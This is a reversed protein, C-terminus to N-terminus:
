LCVADICVQGTNCSSNRTCQPAIEQAGVCYGEKCLTGSCASGCNQDSDCPTRCIANVCERDPACDQNSKCQPTPRGDPRCVNSMCADARNPCDTDVKCGAHCFGNICLSGASCDAAYLCQGGAGVAPQCFNAQCTNGTGCNANSTCPRQCEGDACRGGTGCQFNWTCLATVPKGCVGADNCPLPTTDKASDPTSSGDNSTGPGADNRSTDSTSLSAGADRSESAQVLDVGADQGTAVAVPGAPAKTPTSTCPAQPTATGCPYSPPPPQPPVYNPCSPDDYYGCDEVPHQICAALPLSLALLSIRSYNM